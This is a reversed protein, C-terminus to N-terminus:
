KFPSIAIEKTFTCIWEVTKDWGSSFIILCEGTMQLWLFAEELTQQNPYNSLSSKLKIYKGMDVGCYSRKDRTSEEENAEKRSRRPKNPTLQSKMIERMKRNELVNRKRYYDNLGEILFIWRKKKLGNSDASLNFLKNELPTNKLRNIFSSKLENFCLKIDELSSAKNAFDLASLRFLVFEENIVYEKKTGQYINLDKNYRYNVRRKWTVTNPIPHELYRVEVNLKKLNKELLECPPIEEEENKKDNSGEIILVNKSTKCEDNENELGTESSILFEQEFSTSDTIHFGEDLCIIMEKCAEIKTKLKNLKEIKNQEKRKQLKEEKELKHLRKQLERQRKKQLKIEEHQKRRKEKEEERRKRKEEKSENTKMENKYNNKDKRNDSLKQSNKENLREDEGHNNLSQEKKYRYKVKELNNSNSKYEDRRRRKEDQSENLNQSNFTSSYNKRKKSHGSNQIEEITKTESEFVNEDEDSSFKYKSHISSKANFNETLNNDHSKGKKKKEIDDFNQSKLNNIKKETNFENQILSLFDSKLNMTDEYNLISTDFPSYHNDIIFPDEFLDKTVENKKEDEIKKSIPSNLNVTIKRKNDNIKLLKNNDNDSFCLDLNNNFFDNTSFNHNKRIDNKIFTKVEKKNKIFNDKNNDLIKSNRNYYNNISVNNNNNNKNENNNNNNNNNNGNSDNKNNNSFLNEDFSIIDDNFNGKKKEIEKNFLSNLNNIREFSSNIVKENNFISYKEFKKSDIKFESLNINKEKIIKNNNSNNNLKKSNNVGNLIEDVNLNLTFNEPNYNLHKYGPQSPPSLFLENRIMHDSDKRQNLSINKNKFKDKDKIGDFNVKNSLSNLGKNNPTSHFMEMNNKDNKNLDDFNSEEEFKTIKDEISVSSRIPSILENEKDIFFDKFFTQDMSIDDIDDKKVNDSILSKNNDAYSNDM